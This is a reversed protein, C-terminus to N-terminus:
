SLFGVDVDCSHARLLDTYFDVAHKRLEAPETTVKGDPLRLCVVQKRHM